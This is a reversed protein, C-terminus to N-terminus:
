ATAFFALRAALTKGMLRLGRTLGHTRLSV